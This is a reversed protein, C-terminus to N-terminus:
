YWEYITSDDDSTLLEPSGDLTWDYVPLESQYPTQQEYAPEPHDPPSVAQTRELPKQMLFHPFKVRLGRAFM